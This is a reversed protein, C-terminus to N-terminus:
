EVEPYANSILSFQTIRLNFYNKVHILVKLINSHYVNSKLTSIKILGAIKGTNGFCFLKPLYQFQKIPVVLLSSDTHKCM